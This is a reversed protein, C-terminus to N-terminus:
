RPLRERVRAELAARNFEPAHVRAATEIAM